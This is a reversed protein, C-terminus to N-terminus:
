KVPPVQWEVPTVYKIGRKMRVNKRPHVQSPFVGIVEGKKFIDNKSTFKIHFRPGYAKSNFMAVVKCPLLAGRVAEYVCRTTMPDM